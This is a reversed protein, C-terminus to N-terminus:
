AILVIWFSSYPNRVNPPVFHGDVIAGEPPAIRTVAIPVPPYVRLAEDICAQLYTLKAESAFTMEDPSQFAGRIEKLLVEFVRPNKLLQFTIGSLLTASTESGAMILIASTGMIEDRTM